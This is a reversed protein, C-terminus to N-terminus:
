LVPKVPVVVWKPITVTVDKTKMNPLPTLNSEDFTLVGAGINYVHGSKITPISNGETIDPEGTQTVSNAGKVFGKITIFQPGTFTVGSETTTSVSSFRIIIRPVSALAGAKTAFVNYGWIKSATIPKAIKASAIIGDKLAGAGEPFWDYISPKLDLLYKTGVAESFHIATANDNNSVIEGQLTEVVHAKAYYNDIFIGEVVFGTIVSGTSTIDALEIRAVTPAIKVAATYTPDTGLIDGEGYLNVVNGAVVEVQSEVTLSIEKVASINTTNLTIIPPIAINGVVYVKTADFPINKLESGTAGTVATININAGATTADTMTFHKVIVGSSTTFYLHGSTFKVSEEVQTTGEARTTPTNSIKLTISKTGEEIPGQKPDDKSCSSLGIVLTAIALAFYKLNSKMKTTKTILYSEKNKFHTYLILLIMLALM